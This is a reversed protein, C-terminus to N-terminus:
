QAVASIITAMVEPTEPKSSTIWQMILAEISAIYATRAYEYPIKYKSRLWEESEPVNNLIQGIFDRISQHMNVYTTKAIVALFDINKHIFQLSHLIVDYDLSMTEETIIGYIEGLTEAKLKDMMDYKDVYHLYFTGRKIGAVRCINTITMEEFSKKSLIKTIAKKILKKTETQRKKVM